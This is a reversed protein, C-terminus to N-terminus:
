EDEASDEKEAGDDAKHVGEQVNVEDDGAEMNVEDEDGPKFGEIDGSNKVEMDGLTEQNKKLYNELKVKYEKSRKAAESVHPAKEEEGLQNWVRGLELTVEKNKLNPSAKTLEARKAICFLFFASPPKKPALPDRAAKVKKASTAGETSAGTQGRAQWARWVENQTQRGSYGQNALHVQRWNLLLFTFYDEVPNLLRDAVVPTPLKAKAEYEAKRKLFNESPKYSKLDEEYREKDMMSALEFEKKAEPELDAWRKGLEKTVEAGNCSSLEKQVEAREKACYLFFPSLFRKPADPDKPAKSKEPVSKSALM